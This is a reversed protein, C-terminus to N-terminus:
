LAHEFFSVPKLGSVMRGNFFWSPTGTVGLRRGADESKEVERFAANGKMWSDISQENIGFEVLCDNVVQRLGINEGLAFHAAYLRSKVGSFLKPFHIRVQEAAALAYRSNPLRLPWILPLHADAAEKELLDYMPGKREGMYIGEEPIEIHAQFPLAVLKFGKKELIENRTKSVYCFPCTFDYWHWAIEESYNGIKM